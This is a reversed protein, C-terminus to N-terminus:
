NLLVAIFIILQFVLVCFIGGTLLHSLKKTEQRNSEQLNKLCELQAGALLIIQDIEPIKM